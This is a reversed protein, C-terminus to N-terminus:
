RVDSSKSCTSAIKRKGKNKNYDAFILLNAIFLDPFM